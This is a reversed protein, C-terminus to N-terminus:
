LLFLNTNGILSAGSFINVVYNGKILNEKKADVFVCVDVADKEYNVNTKASYLLTQNKIEISAPNRSVINAKPNIIQIFIEKSGKEIGSNQELTFCVKIQETNKIKKTELIKESVVRAGIANVNVARLKKKETRTEEGSKIESELQNIKANLRLIEKKNSEFDQQKSKLISNLTELQSSKSHKEKKLTTIDKKLINLSSQYTIEASDTAVYKDKLTEIEQALKQNKLLVADYRMLIEGIENNYAKKDLDINHVLADSQTKTEYLKVALVIATFILVAGAIKMFSISPKFTMIKQFKPSNVEIRIATL